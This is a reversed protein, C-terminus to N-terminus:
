LPHVVLLKFHQPCFTHRSTGQVDHVACHVQFHDSMVANRQSPQYVKDKGQCKSKVRNESFAPGSLFNKGRHHTSSLITGSPSLLKCASGNFCVFLLFRIGLYFEQLSFHNLFM